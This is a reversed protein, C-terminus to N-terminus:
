YHKFARVNMDGQTLKHGNDKGKFVNHKESDKHSL